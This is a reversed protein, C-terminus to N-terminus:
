IPQGYRDFRQCGDEDVYAGKHSDYRLGRSEAVKRNHQNEPGFDSDFEDDLEREEDNRDDRGRRKGFM